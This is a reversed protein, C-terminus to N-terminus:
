SKKHVSPLTELSRSCIRQSSPTSGQVKRSAMAMSAETVFVEHPGLETDITTLTATTQETQVLLSKCRTGDNNRYNFLVGQAGQLFRKAHKSSLLQSTVCLKGFLMM